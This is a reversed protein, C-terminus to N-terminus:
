IGGLVAWVPGEPELDAPSPREPLARAAELNETWLYGYEEGVDTELYVTAAGAPVEERLGAPLLFLIGHLTEPWGEEPGVSFFSVLSASDVTYLDAELPTVPRLEM